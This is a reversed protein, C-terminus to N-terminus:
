CSGWRKWLRERALRCAVLLMSLRDHLTHGLKRCALTLMLVRRHEALLCASTLEVSFAQEDLLCTHPPPQVAIPLALKLCLWCQRAILLTSFLASSSLPRVQDHIAESFELCVDIDNNNCISLCNATSGFLHVEATPWRELLVNRVQKGCLPHSAVLQRSMNIAVYHM